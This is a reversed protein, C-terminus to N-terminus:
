ELIKNSNYEIWVIWILTFNRFEKLFIPLKLISSNKELFCNNAKLITPVMVVISEIM